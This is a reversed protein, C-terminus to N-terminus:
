QGAPGLNATHRITYIPGAPRLDSQILHIASVSVPRSVVEQGWPLELPGQGERVRGLTLHPTFPKSEAPWGLPRLMGEIGKQLARLKDTEGKLGVWIVRPRRPAPFCGLKDLQLTLPAFQATVADLGIAVAPLKDTPTDGLFFLTLHIQEPRVWKVSGAPVFKSLERGTTALTTQTGAPFEIAVFARIMEM